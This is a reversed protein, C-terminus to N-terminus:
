SECAPLGISFPQEAKQSSSEDGYIWQDIDDFKKLKEVIFSQITPEILEFEFNILGPFNSTNSNETLFRAPRHLGFKLQEYKSSLNAFFTSSHCNLQNTSLTDPLLRPLLAIFALNRKGSIPEFCQYPWYPLIFPSSSIANVKDNFTLSGITYFPIKLPECTQDSISQTPMEDRSISKNAFSMSSSPPLEETRLLQTFHRLTLPGIMTDWLKAVIHRKQLSQQLIPKLQWLLRTVDLDTGVHVGSSLWPHLNIECTGGIYHKASTNSIVTSAERGHKYALAIADIVHNQKYIDSCRQELTLCNDHLAFSRLCSLVYQNIKLAFPSSLLRRIEDVSESSLAPGRVVSSCTEILEFEDEVLLGSMPAFSFSASARYACSCSSIPAIHWRGTLFPLMDCGRISDSASRVCACLPCSDFNTDYFFNLCSDLLSLNIVLGDARLFYEAPISKNQQKVSESLNLETSLCVSSENRIETDLPFRLLIAKQLKRSVPKYSPLKIMTSLPVMTATHEVVVPNDILNLFHQEQLSHHCYNRQIIEVAPTSPAAPSHQVTRESSPPTLIEDRYISPISRVTDISIPKNGGSNELLDVLASNDENINSKPPTLVIAGLPDTKNSLQGSVVRLYDDGKIKSLEPLTQYPESQNIDESHDPLISQNLLSSNHDLRIPKTFYSLYNHDNAYFRPEKVPQDLKNSKPSQATSTTSSPNAPTGISKLPSDCINSDPQGPTYESATLPSPNSMISSCAFPSLDDCRQHFFTLSNNLKSTNLDITSCECCQHNSFDSSAVPSNFYSKLENLLANEFLSEFIIDYEPNTSLPNNYYDFIELEFANLDTIYAFHMPYLIKAKESQLFFPQIKRVDDSNSGVIVDIMSASADLDTTPPFPYVSAWENILDPIQQQLRPDPPDTQPIYKAAIGFPSLMVEFGQNPASNVDDLRVKRVPARKEIDVIACIRSDGHLFFDFAFALRPMNLIEVDTPLIFWRGFRAFGKQLLCREILNHYAKFILTRCEYSLGGNNWSGSCRVTLNTFPIARYPEEEFWFVWLEKEFQVPRKTAGVIPVRRWVSLINNELCQLYATIISDWFINAKPVHQSSVFCRWQIGDINALAFLNTHCHELSSSDIRGGCASSSNGSSIGSPATM